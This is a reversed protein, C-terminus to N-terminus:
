CDNMMMSWQNVQEMWEKQNGQMLGVIKVFVLLIHKKALIANEV